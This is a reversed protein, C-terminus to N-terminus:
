WFDPLHFAKAPATLAANGSCFAGSGTAQPFRERTIDIIMEANITLAVNSMTKRQNIQRIQTDFDQTALKATHFFLTEKLLSRSSSFVTFKRKKQM